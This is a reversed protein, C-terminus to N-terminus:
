CLAQIRIVTYINIRIHQVYKVTVSIYHNWFLRWVRILTCPIKIEQQNERILESVTFVTFRANQLMWYSKMLSMWGQNRIGLKGWDGSILFFESPPIESKRTERAVGSGAVINVHIKSWYSFKVLFVYVSWFM